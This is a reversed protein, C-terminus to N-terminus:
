RGEGKATMRFAVETLGQRKTTRTLRKWALRAREFLRGTLRVPFHEVLWRSLKLSCLWFLAGLVGEFLRRQAPIHDPWFGYEPVARGRRRWREMRLFAGRKKFDLMHSHMGMAERAATPQLSLKGVQAMEELLAAGKQTRGMVLSWGLGREEYVPAWADGCAIDAFENALDVCLKCREVMFFPILYNAYFKKLAIVRGSRLRVQMQGPWEGARYQLDAIQAVDGVGNNRLFSRVADFHLITGCYSGIVYSIKQAALHGAAQLKRLSHVQCPLGVYAFPGEQRELEQFVANIPSLSYKSQAAEQIEEATRAIKVQARWPEQQDMALVVAGQVRGQELLYTLVATMVGGSAGRSRMRADTAHGVYLNQYHGLLWNDPQQGFVQQNLAPFLVEQGSCAVQCLGCSTCPGVQVPLCEGLVDDFALAKEPCVGVCGGCRTCLGTDIVQAKLAAFDSKAVQTLVGEM